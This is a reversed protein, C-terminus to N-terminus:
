NPIHDSFSPDVVVNQVEQCIHSATAFASMDSRGYTPQSGEDDNPYRRVLVSTASLVQLIKVRASNSGDDKTVWAKAGPRLNTQSTVTLVGKNTAASIAVFAEPVANSPM